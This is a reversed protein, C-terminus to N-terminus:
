AAASRGWKQRGKIAAALMGQRCRPTLAKSKGEAGWTLCCM